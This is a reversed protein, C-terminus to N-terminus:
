RRHRNLKRRKAHKHKNMKRKRKRRVSDAKWESNPRADDEGDGFLQEWDLTVLPGHQILMSDGGALLPSAAFPPSVSALWSAAQLSTLPASIPNGIKANLMEQLGVSSGALHPLAAGSPLVDPAGAVRATLSALAPAGDILSASRGSCLSALAGPARGLLIKGVEIPQVMM